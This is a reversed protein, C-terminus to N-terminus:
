RSAPGLPVKPKEVARARRGFHPIVEKAFVRMSARVKKPDIGPLAMGLALHTYNTYRELLEILDDPSGILLPEGLFRPEDLKRLEDGAPVQACHEDGAVDAAESLWQWYKAM